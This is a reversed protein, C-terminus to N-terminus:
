GDSRRRATDRARPYRAMVRRAGWRPTWLPAKNIDEVIIDWDAAALHRRYYGRAHFPFTYREGVRHVDMGDLEVRPAAGAWGSCLLALRHGRAALRGFVQHVEIEAGGAQPKERDQWNM